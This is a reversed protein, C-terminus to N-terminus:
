AKENLLPIHFFNEQEKKRREDIEKRMEQLLIEAGYKYDLFGRVLTLLIIFCFIGLLSYCCLVLFVEKFKIGFNLATILALTTMYILQNIIITFGHIGFSYQYPRYVFLFILYFVAFLGLVASPPIVYIFKDNLLCM